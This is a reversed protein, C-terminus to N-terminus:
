IESKSGRGTALYILAIASLFILISQIADRFLVSLGFKGMIDLIFGFAFLSLFWSIGKGFEGFVALNSFISQDTKLSQAFTQHDKTVTKPDQAKQQLFDIGMGYGVLWIGANVCLALLWISYITEM